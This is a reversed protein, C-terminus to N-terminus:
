LATSKSPATEFAFQILVAGEYKRPTAEKHFLGKKQLNEMMKGICRKSIDVVFSMSARVPRDDIFIATLTSNQIGQDGGVITTNKEQHLFQVLQMTTTRDM